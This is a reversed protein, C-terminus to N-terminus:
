RETGTPSQWYRPVEIRLSPASATGPWPRWAYDTATLGFLILLWFLGAGAFVWALPAAREIKMFGYVIIGVMIAAIILSVAANAAGLRIFSLGFSLGGLAALVLWTVAFRVPPLPGKGM